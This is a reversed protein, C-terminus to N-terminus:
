EGGNHLKTKFNNILSLSPVKVTINDGDKEVIPEIIIKGDVIKAKFEEM